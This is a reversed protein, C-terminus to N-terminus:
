GSVKLMIPFQGFNFKERIVAGGGYQFCVDAMFRGAYTTKAQRCEFPYLAERMTGSLRDKEVPKIAMLMDELGKEVMFDFSEIHHRVLDRLPEYDTPLLWSPVMRRRSKLQNGGTATTIEGGATTTM